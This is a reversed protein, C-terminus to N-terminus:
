ICEDVGGANSNDSFVSLPKKKQHETYKAPRIMKSPYDKEHDFHGYLGWDLWWSGKGDTRTATFGVRSLSGRSGEKRRQVQVIEM